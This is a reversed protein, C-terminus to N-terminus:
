NMLLGPVVFYKVQRRVRVFLSKLKRTIYGIPRCCLNENKKLENITCPMSFNTKVRQWPDAVANRNKHDRMMLNWLLPEAQYLELFELVRENSWQEQSSMIKFKDSYKSERENSKNKLLKLKTKTRHLLM